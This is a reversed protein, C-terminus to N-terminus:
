YLVIYCIIYHCFLNKHCHQKVFTKIQNSYFLFLEAQHVLM